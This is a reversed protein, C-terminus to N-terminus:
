CLTDVAPDRFWSPASLVQPSGPRGRPELIPDKKEGHRGAKLTRLSIPSMYRLLQATSVQLTGWWCTNRAELDTGGPRPVAGEGPGRTGRSSTEAPQGDVDEASGGAARASMEGRRSVARKYSGESVNSLRTSLASRM